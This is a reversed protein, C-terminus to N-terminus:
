ARREDELERLVLATRWRLVSKSIHVDAWIHDGVYLIEEGSAGLFTEVQGADGGLFRGGARLGGICPRLLGDDDVVEFLPNRGSFFDPKRASVIVVDFLERWTTDRPLFRDFAYSMMAKTYQWESNTILLLKKGAQRQDMLALPLEPDLDVFRDPDAVIEAKLHGELHARDLARKTRDYLEGYGMVGPLRAQDLLEVLQAYMCAESHSFLTNLFVWRPEALDVLTREYTRRQRDFDLERTGHCARKVYGFRNAKVINGLERDVILGRVFLEPDFALEAVPWGLGALQGRLYEYATREWEDVRYHLLTYDMDYGIAKISRLNLTRNCYVRREPPPFAALTQLAEM